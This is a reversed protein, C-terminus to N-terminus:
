PIVWLLLIKKGLFSASCSNLNDGGSIFGDGVPVCINQCQFNVHKNYEFCDNAMLHTFSVGM